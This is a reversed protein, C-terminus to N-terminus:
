ASMGRVGASTRPRRAYITPIITVMSACSIYGRQDIPLGVGAMSRHPVADVVDRRIAEPHPTYVGEIGARECAGRLGEQHRRPAQWRNSSMAWIRGRRRARRLHPLLRPPIPVEGRRKNTRRRGAVEFDIRGGGPRGTALAVLPDSGEAPRHLPRYPHVAPPLAAGSADASGPDPPRGGGSHALSRSAGTSRAARGRSAPHNHWDQACPQHRGPARRARPPGNRDCPRAERSDVWTQPTM